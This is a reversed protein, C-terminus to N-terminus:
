QQRCVGVKNASVHVCQPPRPTTSIGTRRFSRSYVGTPVFVSGQM